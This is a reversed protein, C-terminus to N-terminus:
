PGTLLSPCGIALVLWHDTEALVRWQEPPKSTQTRAVKSDRVIFMVGPHVPAQARIVQHLPVDLIWPLQPRVLPGTEISLQGCALVADRGGATVLAADVASDLDASVVGRDRVEAWVTSLGIVRPVSAGIAVVVAVVVVVWGTRTSGRAVHSGRASVLVTLLHVLGIGAVVCVLAAPALLFRSLAAYGLVLTLTVVIGVWAAALGLVALVTDGSAGGGSRRRRWAVVGGIAALIWVVPAVMEAPVEVALRVRDAFTSPGVQAVDAGHWPSGSGWLDGGFWLVGVAAWGGVVVIRTGFMARWTTRVQGLVPKPDCASPTSWLLWAGYALLFPWAEPRVLSAMALALFAHRPRGALHREVAWTTFGAALPASHGELVTRAFRPEPDPSLFLLAAAILGAGRAWWGSLGWRRALLAGLVGVITLTLAGGARALLMWLAPAADGFVSLVTTILVPFPKWSPGGTTDLDLRAVERGWVLWAWPDFNLTTPLVWLSALSVALSTAIARSSRASM